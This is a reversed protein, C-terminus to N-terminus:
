RAAQNNKLFHTYRHNKKWWQKLNRGTVKVEIGAPTLLILQSLQGTKLAALLPELWKKDFQKMLDIWAYVDANRVPEALHDM